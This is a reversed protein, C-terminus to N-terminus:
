GRRDDTARLRRSRRRATEQEFRSVSEGQISWRAAQRVIHEDFLAHDVCGPQPQDSARPRISRGDRQGLPSPVRKARARMPSGLREASSTTAVAVM